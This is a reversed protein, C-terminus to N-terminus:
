ASRCLQFLGDGGDVDHHRRHGVVAGPLRATLGSLFQFRGVVARLASDSASGGLNSFAQVVVRRYVQPATNSMVAVVNNGFQAFQWQDTSALDTYFYTMSHTGSGAGSTNVATGGSTLSVNFTNAATNVVYYVTGVTLGPRCPTRRPCCWGLAM